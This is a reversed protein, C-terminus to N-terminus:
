PGFRVSGVIANVEAVNQESTTGPTYSGQIVVRTGDVDLVRLRLREGPSVDMDEYTPSTWTAFGDTGVCPSTAPATVELEKGQFRDVSIDTPPTVASWPLSSIATVLEEVTAGVPPKRLAEKNCPDTVVNTVMFIQVGGGTGNAPCLLGADNICSLWGPPVVVSAYVPLLWPDLVYTGPAVPRPAGPYGPFTPLRAGATQAASTGPTPSATGTATAIPAESAPPAGQGPQNALTGLIGVAVVVLVIAAAGVAVATSLWGLGPWRMRGPVHGNVTRAAEVASAVAERRPPRAAPAAYARLSDALRDEFTITDTM